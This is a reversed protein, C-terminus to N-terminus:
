LIHLDNTNRIFCIGKDGFYVQTADIEHDRTM